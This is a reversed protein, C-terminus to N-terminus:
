RFWVKFNTQAAATVTSDFASNSLLFVFGPGYLGLNYFAEFIKATMTAPVFFLYSKISDQQAVLPVLQAQIDALSTKAADLILRSIINVGYIPSWDILDSAGSAGYSETSHILLCRSFGLKAFFSLMGQAQFTTSTVTRLFNPYTEASAFMSLSVTNAIMPLAHQEL